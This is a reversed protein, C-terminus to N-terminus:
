NMNRKKKTTPHKRQEKRIGLIMCRHERHTTYRRGLKAILDSMEQLMQFNYKGRVIQFSMISQM